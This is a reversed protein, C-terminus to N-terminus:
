RLVTEIADWMRPYWLYTEAGALDLATLWERQDKTPKNPEVKLEAFILCRGRVLVLDPFGPASNASKWTHYSMWGHEIAFKVVKAQFKKVSTRWDEIAEVPAPPILAAPSGQSLWSQYEDATIESRGDFPDSM